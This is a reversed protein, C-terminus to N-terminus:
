SGYNANVSNLYNSSVDMQIGLITTYWDVGRTDGTHEVSLVFYVGDSTLVGPISAATGTQSLDIKQNNILAEALDIRTNILINPNLLCKVNVGSNTQQPSGILGTQSNLVVAQGPLYAKQPCFTVKENQISWTNGSNQAISRLYIKANGFMCKGRPLKFAPLIPTNGQIVGKTAMPTIAAFLQQSQTSGSALTVNVVSHNYARDGDGAVIDLYTDTGSERGILIQKINGQFITSANGDGQYGAQLIVQGPYYTLGTVADPLSSGFAGLIGLATQAEVNYVRIDATNPTMTNSRKVSFKIRLNSLDIGKQNAGYVILTCSRIYQESGDNNVM